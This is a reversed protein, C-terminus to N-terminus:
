VRLRAQGKPVVPFGFGIVFVGLELLRKSKAIAQATDGIMIPLIATPSDHCDYGLRRLGERVRAVNEHLRGVRRPEPEIIEIAKNASCAVTAPLANSFLSPRSRQILMDIIKDSAAVFGGAGGGLAKGLTSTMIDVGRARGQDDVMQYYEHVGRGREGLVGTGHSDDVVLMADYKECLEALGPLPPLDGEMSFVGDTVVWRTDKDRAAKLQAELDELDNHPYVARTASKHVLRCGDIISAHNLADSFIADNPGVLTPFLAGNANWCSVYTLSAQVGIFRAITRELTEHCAFTGCIFRVSATGAGYTQLGDIGAQVVEPHDALGLYNNSCLMIVEGRDKLHVVPGMSGTITQLRKYQGTDHLEALQDTIRQDFAAHPM